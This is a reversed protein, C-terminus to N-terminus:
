HGKEFPDSGILGVHSGRGRDQDFDGYHVM